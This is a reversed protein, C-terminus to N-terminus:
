RQVTTSETLKEESKENQTHLHRACLHDWEVLGLLCILLGTGIFVAETLDQRDIKIVGQNTAAYALKPLQNIGYVVAAVLSGWFYNSKSLVRRKAM